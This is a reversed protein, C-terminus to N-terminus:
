AVKNLVANIDIQYVEKWAQAPYSHVVGFRDDPIDKMVLGNRNCYYTLKLGSVKLHKLRSQVALVTAYQYETKPSSLKAELQSIQEDQWKIKDNARALKGMVSAERSSAIHSKERIVQSLETGLLDYNRQLSEKEEESKLALLLLDKRSLEVAQPAAPAAVQGYSGTKRISPLIESVVFEEFKEATPLKSRMVLRYVDREPIIKVTQMGGKSPTFTESVGKCHDRIAKHPNSYGLKEAVEKGIFWLSGDDHTLVTLDGFLDSHFKHSHKDPQPQEIKDVPNFLPTLVKKVFELIHPIYKDRPANVILEGIQSISIYYDERPVFGKCNTYQRLMPKSLAAHVSEKTYGLHLFIPYAIVLQKETDIFTFCNLLNDLVHEKSTNSPEIAMPLQKTM